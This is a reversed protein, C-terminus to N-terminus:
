DGTSHRLIWPSIKDRHATASLLVLDSDEDAVGYSQWQYAVMM